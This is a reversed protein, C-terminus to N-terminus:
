SPDPNVTITVHKNISFTGPCGQISGKKNMPILVTIQLTCYINVPPCWGDKIIEKYTIVVSSKRLLRPDLCPSKEAIAIVTLNPCSDVDM